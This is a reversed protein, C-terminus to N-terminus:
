VEYKNYVIEGLNLHTTINIEITDQKSSNIEVSLSEFYLLSELFKQFANWFQEEPINVKDVTVSISKPTYVIKSNNGLINFQTLYKFIYGTGKVCYFLHELYIMNNVYEEERDQFDSDDENEGQEPEPKMLTLFYGVPDKKLNELYGTFSDTDDTEAQDQYEELLSCFKNIIPVNNRLYKPIKLKIM